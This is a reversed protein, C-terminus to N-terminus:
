CSPRERDDILDVDHPGPPLVVQGMERLHRREDPVVRNGDVPRAVPEVSLMQRFGEELRVKGRELVAPEGMPGIEVRLGDLLHSVRDLRPVLEEKSGMLGSALTHARRSEALARFEARERELLRATLEALSVAESDLALFVAEVLAAGRLVVDLSDGYLAVRETVEPDGKRAVVHGHGFRFGRCTL